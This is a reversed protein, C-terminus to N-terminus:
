KTIYNKSSQADLLDLDHNTIWACGSNFGDIVGATYSIGGCIAGVAFLELAEFAATVIEEKHERVYGVAKSIPSSM